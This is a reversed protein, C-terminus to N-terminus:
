QLEPVGQLWGLAASLRLSAVEHSIEAQIAQLETRLKRETAELLYSVPRLGSDVESKIDILAQRQSAVAEQWATVSDGAGRYQHWLSQTQMQVSDQAHRLDSKATSVMHKAQRVQSAKVGGQYLPVNINLTVEDTGTDISSQRGRIVKGRVTFEPMRELRIKKLEAEAFDLRMKMVALQPDVDNAMDVVDTMSVPFNHGLNASGKPRPATIGTLYTLNSENQNLRSKALSYEAREEALRARIMNVDTQTAIKERAREATGDMLEQLAATNEKLAQLTKLQGKLQVWAEATESLVQKKTLSFESQAERIKARQSNKAAGVRGFVPLAQSAEVGVYARGGNQVSTGEASYQKTNIEGFSALGNVQPLFRGMSESLKETARSVESSASQVRSDHSLSAQLAQTLSVQEAMVAPSFLMFMSCVGVNVMRSLTM